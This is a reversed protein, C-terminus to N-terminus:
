SAVERYMRVRPGDGKLQGRRYADEYARHERVMAELSFGHTRKRPALLCWGGRGDAVVRYTYGGPMEIHRGEAPVFETIPRFGNVMLVAEEDAMRRLRAQGSALYVEHHLQILVRDGLDHVAQHDFRETAGPKAVYGRLGHRRAIEAVVSDNYPRAGSALFREYEEYVTPIAPRGFADDAERLQAILQDTM